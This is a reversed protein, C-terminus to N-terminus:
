AYKRVYFKFVRLANPGKHISQTGVFWPWMGVDFDFFGLAGILVEALEKVVAGISSGVCLM